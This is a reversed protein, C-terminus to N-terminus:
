FSKGFLAKVQPKNLEIISFVGLLIGLVGTLCNLIAVIFIFQYNRQEQLYKAALFCLIGITLSILFGVTGIVMFIAGPNFPMDALDKEAIVNFFVSGFGAYILFFLSAFM